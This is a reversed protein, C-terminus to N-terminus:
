GRPKFTRFPAWNRRYFLSFMRATLIGRRILRGPNIRLFLLTNLKLSNFNNTEHFASESKVQYQLFRKM